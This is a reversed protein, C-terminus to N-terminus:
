LTHKEDILRRVLAEGLKEIEERTLSHLRETEIQVECGASIELQILTRRGRTSSRPQEKEASVGAPLPARSAVARELDQGVRRASSLAPLADHTPSANAQASEKFKKVQLQAPNLEAERNLFPEGDPAQAVDELRSRKLQDCSNPAVATPGIETLRRTLAKLEADMRPEDDLSMLIQGTRRLIQHATQSEALVYKIAPLSWQNRLLARVALLRVLHDFGFRSERRGPRRPTPILERVVYDRILRVNLQGRLEREQTPSDRDGFLAPFDAIIGEAVEIFRDV